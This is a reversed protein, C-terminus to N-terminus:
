NRLQNSNQSFSVECLNYDISKATEEQRKKTVFYYGFACLASFILFYPLLSQEESDELYEQAMDILENDNNKKNFSDNFKKLLSVTLLDLLDKKNTIMKKQLVKNSKDELFDNESKLAKKLFYSMQEKLKENNVNSVQDLDAASNMFAWFNDINDLQNEDANNEVWNAPTLALVNLALNEPDEAMNKWQLETDGKTELEAKKELLKNLQEVRYMEKQIELKKKM